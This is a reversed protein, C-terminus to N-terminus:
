EEVGDKKLHLVLEYYYGKYEFHGTACCEIKKDVMEERIKRINEINLKNM